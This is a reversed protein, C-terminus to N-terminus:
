ESILICREPPLRLRLSQGRELIVRPDLDLELSLAQPDAGAEVAPFLRIRLSRGLFYSAEVRGRLENEGRSAGPSLLECCDSPFHLFARAGNATSPETPVSSLPARDGGPRGGSFRFSGFVTLALCGGSAGRDIRLVPLLPGRGLFRATYAKRPREYLARPEGEEIIRGAEMVFVRDAVAFAEAVDHTVFLASVGAEKLRDAIEARLRERLGTDLSSLPEDLLVLDPSVALARALAVRQQEGGSLSAPQRDLLPGIGFSEALEEVRREVETRAEGRIRPGYGINKRVSLQPFLAFDQFVMGIKRKEPFLARLERGDLVISGSDPQELGAILRLLTSKGCGSPGLIAGIAGPELSLTVDLSFDSWSKRIERIELM